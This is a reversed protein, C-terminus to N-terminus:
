AHKTVKPTDPASSGHIRHATHAPIHIILPNAVSHAIVVTGDALVDGEVLSVRNILGLATSAIREAEGALLLNM